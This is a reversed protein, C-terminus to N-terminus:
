DELTDIVVLQGDAMVILVRVGVALSQAATTTVSAPLADTDTLPGWAVTLPATGVVRGRHIAGSPIQNTILRHVAGAVAASSPM